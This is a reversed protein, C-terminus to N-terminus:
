VMYEKINKGFREEFIRAFYTPNEFGVAIAVESVTFIEKTELIRKAQHLRVERLYKNPTLGTTKKIKRSLQRKSVYLEGAMNEISFFRNSVERKAIAEVKELFRLDINTVETSEKETVNPTSGEISTGSIEKMLIPEIVNRSRANTILNKIRLLLEEPDFPKIMYDDVGIRLGHLKDQIDARATLLIFPISCFQDHGKVKELLTFGDMEPMMVDSLILQPTGTTLQQLAELGNNVVIVNYYPLLISHIFEQLSLNDEVVLITKKEQSIISNAVSVPSSAVTAQYNIDRFASSVVEMPIKLEFTTGNGVTSHVIIQGGMLETLEKTLALGIGTGGELTTNSKSQYYRNFIYPIDESPIGRGSDKVKVWLEEEIRTLSMQIQGNKSTFKFANSLLNNIVKEMKGRDVIITLEEDLLSIFQYDISKIAATSDFQASLREFYQPILTPQPDLELKDTELKSLDLIENVLNLLNKSNNYIKQLSSKDANDITGKKLLQSLPGSILSIPTRLEHSINAFFRTKLKDLNRLQEAEQTIFLQRTRWKIWLLVGLSLLGILLLIFWWQLYVPRLVNVQFALHNAAQQGNGNQASIELIHKGYPLGSFNLIPNKSSQWDYLGKIRYNFTSNKSHYFDLLALHINFFRDGSQLTIEHKELLQTTLDVLTSQEGSFQKFSKFTLEPATLKDRSDAYRKPHFSTWGNITGFYLTGDATQYHSVRNFENDPTGNQRFYKTVQESKKDFQMLGNDSSIWLYGYDDEYVAHLDNSSLGTSLTYQRYLTSPPRYTDKDDIDRGGDIPWRILGGGGTALWIIINGDDKKEQYIHHIDRDPLYYDKEQKDHYHAIIEGNERCLFLGHNSAVWILQHDFLSTQINYINFEGDTPNEFRIAVRFTETQPNFALIKEDANMWIEGSEAEYISWFFVFEEKSTNQYTQTTKTQKNYKNLDYRNSWWVNGKKDELFTTFWRATDALIKQEGRKDYKGIAYITSFWTNGAKDELIGRMSNSYGNNFPFVNQFFNPQLTIVQIGRLGDSFWTKDGDFLLPTRWNYIEFPSFPFGYVLENKQNIVLVEEKTTLWYLLEKQNYRSDVIVPTNIDELPKARKKNITPYSQLTWMGSYSYNKIGRKTQVSIPSTYDLEEIIAGSESLRYFHAAWDKKEAGSTLFEGNELQLVDRIVEYKKPCHINRFGKDRSYIFIKKPKALHIFIEYDNPTNGLQQLLTIDKPAFPLPEKFYDDIDIIKNSYIDVINLACNTYDYQYKDRSKLIWLHRQGDSVIKHVAEITMEEQNERSFFEFEQGDFRDLGHETGIWIFGRADKCISHIINSSLGDNTTYHKVSPIYSNQAILLSSWFIFIVIATFRM